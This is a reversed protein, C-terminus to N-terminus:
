FPRSNKELFPPPAHLIMEQLPASVVRNVDRCVNMRSQAFGAICSSLVFCALVAARGLSFQKQTIM